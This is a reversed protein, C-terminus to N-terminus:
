HTENQIKEIYNSGRCIDWEINRKVIRAPSGAIIVNEERFEKNVLSCAGVVSNRSILAGKLIVSNTGIWVNDGINVDKTMNLIEKTDKNIITHGDSTRIVTNMAILVNNGINICAPKNNFAGNAVMYVNERIQCDEGINIQSNSEIFFKSARIDHRSFKISFVGSDGELDVLANKFKLPQEIIVKNNNGELVVTLGKPMFIRKIPKGKKLFIIKNNKGYNYCGTLKGILNVIMTKFHM